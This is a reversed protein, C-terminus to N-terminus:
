TLAHTLTALRRLVSMAAGSNIAESATRIGSVLDEACGGVVLAAGANLLVMDKEPSNGPALAQEFKVTAEHQGAIQFDALSARQLGLEEPALTFHRVTDGVVEWVQSTTTTTLEDLGDDGRVVWSRKTGLSALVRAVLDGLEPQERGFVVSPQAVGVL